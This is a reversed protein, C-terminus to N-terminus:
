RGAQALAVQTVAAAFASMARCVEALPAAGGIDREMLALILLQRARRLAAGIRDGQISPEIAAGGPERAQTVWNEVLRTVRDPTLPAEILAQLSAVGDARAQLAGLSRRFFGSHQEALFPM